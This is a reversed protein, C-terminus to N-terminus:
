PSLGGILSRSEQRAIRRRERVRAAATKVLLYDGQSRHGVGTFQWDAQFRRTPQRVCNRNSQRRRYDARAQRLAGLTTSYRRSKSTCHGRYGLTYIRRHLRLHQLRNDRSLKTAADIYRRAHETPQTETHALPMGVTETAKTAYKAIYGAVAEPASEGEVTIPKIDLQSGWVIPDADQHPSPVRVATAAERIADTLLRRTFQAPPYSFEERNAGDLRIVAHLHVVGRRQYEVVKTYSVRVQRALEAQTMGAQNALARKLYITTRRWLERVHANWIVAQEYNFCHQCLPEGVCKDNKDHHQWCGLSKGHRCKGTRQTCVRSRSGVKRTTHVRGFSPATFTAFVMPHEAVTEPIGKGGKLGAAVLQWTDAKYRESCPPCVAERRNGCAKLLVGDPESNSSYLAKGSPARVAGKLRVPHHCYGTQKVQREWREFRDPNSARTAVEHLTQRDLQSM